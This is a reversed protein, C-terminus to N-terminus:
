LGSSLGNTVRMLVFSKYFVVMKIWWLSYVCLHVHVWTCLCVYM